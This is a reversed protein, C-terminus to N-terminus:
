DIYEGQHN